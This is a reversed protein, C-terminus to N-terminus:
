YPRTPESIHILSLQQNGLQRQVTEFRVREARVDVGAAELESLADDARDLLHLLGLVQPGARRLRSVRIEAEDLSQRVRDAPTHATSPVFHKAM